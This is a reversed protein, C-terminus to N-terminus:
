VRHRAHATLDAMVRNIQQTPTEGAMLRRKVEAMCCAIMFNSLNRRESKAAAEILQYEETACYATIQKTGPAKPM